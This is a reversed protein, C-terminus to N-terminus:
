ARKVSPLMRGKYGAVVKTTDPVVATDGGGFQLKMTQRKAMTVKRPDAVLSGVTAPSSNVDNLRKVSTIPVDSNLVLLEKGKTTPPRHWDGGGGVAGGGTVGGGTVAKGLPRNCTLCTARTLAPPLNGMSAGKIEEQLESVEDRDAKQQLISQLKKLQPTKSLTSRLTDSMTSILAFTEETDAKNAVEDQMRMFKIRVEDLSGSLKGVAERANEGDQIESIMSRVTEEFIKVERHAASVKTSLVDQLNNTHELTAYTTAAADSDLKNALTDLLSKLRLDTMGKESTLAVFKRFSDLGLNLGTEMNKVAIDRPPRKFSLRKLIASSAETGEHLHRYIPVAIATLDEIVSRGEPTMRRIHSSVGQLDSNFRDYLEQSMKGIEQLSPYLMKGTKSAFIDVGGQKKEILKLSQSLACLWKVVESTLGAFNDMPDTGSLRSVEDRVEDGEARLRSLEENMAASLDEGSLRISGRMEEKLDKMKFDMSSELDSLRTDDVVARASGITAKLSQMEGAQSTLASKLKSVTELAPKLSRSADASASELAALRDNIPSLQSAPPPTTLAELKELRAETSTVFNNFREELFKLEKKMNTHVDSRSPLNKLDAKSTDKAAKQLALKHESLKMLAIKTFLSSKRRSAAFEDLNMKPRVSQLWRHFKIKIKSWTAPNLSTASASPQSGDEKNLHPSVTPSAENNGRDETGPMESGGKSERKDSELVTSKEQIKGDEAETIESKKEMGQEETQPAGSEETGQEEEKQTESKQGSDETKPMESKEDTKQQQTELTEPNEETGQEIAQPMESKEDVEESKEQIQGEEPMESVEIGQGEAGTLSSDEIVSPGGEDKVSGPEATTPPPNAVDSTPAPSPSPKLDDNLPQSETRRKAISDDISGKTYKDDEKKEEDDLDEAEEAMTLLDEIVRRELEEVRNGVRQLQEGIRGEIGGCEERAVEKAIDEIVQRDGSGGVEMEELREGVVERVTRGITVKIEEKVLKMVESLLSERADSVAESVDSAVGERVSLTLADVLLSVASSSDSSM